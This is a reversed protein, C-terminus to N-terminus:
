RGLVLPPARSQFRAPIGAAVLARPPPACSRAPKAYRVRARRGVIEGAREVLRLLLAGITAAIAQVVIGTLTIALLKDGPPAGVLAREAAELTVFGGAQVLTLLVIHARLHSGSTRTRARAVGLAFAALLSMVGVVLAVFLAKSLYGHGTRLLLDHRHAPDPVILRYDLEHAILLGAAATGVISAFRALRARRLSM